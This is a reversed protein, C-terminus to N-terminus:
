NLLNKFIQKLENITNCSEINEIYKYQEMCKDYHPKTYEDIYNEIQMKNLNVFNESIYWVITQNDNLTKALNSLFVIDPTYNYIYDKWNNVALEYVASKVDEFTKQTVKYKKYAIDNIIDFGDNELNEFMLNVDPRHDICNYIKIREHLQLYNDIPLLDKFYMTSDNPLEINHIDFKQKLAKDFDITNWFMPGIVKESNNIEDDIVMIYERGTAQNFYSDDIWPLTIKEVVNPFKNEELEADVKMILKNYDIDNKIWNIITEEKLDDYKIYNDTSPSTLGTRKYTEGFHTGDLVKFTWDVSKVVNDLNNEHPAVWLSLIKWKYQKM